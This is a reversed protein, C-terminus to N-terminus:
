RAVPQAGSAIPHSPEVTPKATFDRVTVDESIYRVRSNRSQVPRPLPEPTFDRVTVDESIYRVQSNRTQVPRPLPQPTFDRVTMDESRVQNNQSQVPQPLPKPTFHRVTVDQAVYDLENNGVRVWQPMTRATKRAEERLDPTTQSSTARNTLVPKPTGSPVHRESGNSRRVTSPGLPAAPRRDRNAIWSAIILLAAVAAATKWRGKYLLVGKSRKTAALGLRTLLPPKAAETMSEGCVRCIARNTAAGPVSGGDNLSEQIQPRIQGMNQQLTALDEALAEQQEPWGSYSMAEGILLAMLRYSCVERHQFAHVEDFLVELVGAVARDNHIPLVLLSQAGFQRCIAAEIRSDTQANEVRLIEGRGANRTSVCLTAMVQRGVYRAASGSGARYVLQDGKLLGIAVGAANAVGQVREAILQMTGDVDLEGTGISRQVEVIASLAETDMGSEQVAFSDALLKQFSEPDLNTHATM